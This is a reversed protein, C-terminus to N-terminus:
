YSSPSFLCSFIGSLSPLASLYLADYPSPLFYHKSYLSCYLKPPVGLWPCFGLSQQIEFFTESNLLWQSPMGPLPVLKYQPMSTLSPMTVGLFYVSILCSDVLIHHDVM